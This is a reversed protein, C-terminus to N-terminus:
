RLVQKIRNMTKKVQQTPLSRSSPHPPAHSVCKLLVWRGTSRHRGGGCVCVCACWWWGSGRASVHTLRTIHAARNVAGRSSRGQAQERVEWGMQTLLM